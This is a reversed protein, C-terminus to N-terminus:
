QYQYIQCSCNPLYGTATTQVCICEFTVYFLISYYISYYLIVYFLIFYVYLLIFYGYFLLVLLLLVFVLKVSCVSVQLTIFLGFFGFHRIENITFDIDGHHYYLLSNVIIILIDIFNWLNYKDYEIMIYSILSWHRAVSTHVSRKSWGTKWM